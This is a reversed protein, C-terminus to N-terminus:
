LWRKLFFIRSFTQAPHGLLLPRSLEASSLTQEMQDHRGPMARGSLLWSPDACPGERAAPLLPRPAGQTPSHVVPSLALATASLPGHAWRPARPPPPGQQSYCSSVAPSPSGPLLAAEDGCGLLPKGPCVHTSPFEGVLISHTSAWWCLPPDGVCLKPYVFAPTRAQIQASLLEWSPTWPPLSPVEVCLDVTSRATSWVCQPGLPVPWPLGMETTPPCIRLVSPSPFLTRTPLTPQSPPRHCRLAWVGAQERGM